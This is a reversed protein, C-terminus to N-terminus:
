TLDINRHKHLLQRTEYEDNADETAIQFTDHLIALEAHTWRTRGGMRAGFSAVTLKLRKAVSAQTPFEPAQQQGRILHWLRLSFASSEARQTDVHFPRRGRRRQLFRSLREEAYSNIARLEFLNGKPTSTAPTPFLPDRNRLVYVQAVSVDLIAAVERTTIRTERADM